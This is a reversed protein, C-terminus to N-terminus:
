PAVEREKPAPLLRPRGEVGHGGGLHTVNADIDGAAVGQEMQWVMSCIYCLVKATPNALAFEMQRPGVWIDQRCNAEQCQRLSYQDTIIIKDLEPVQPLMSRDRPICAIAQSM